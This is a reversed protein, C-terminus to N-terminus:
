EQNIPDMIMPKGEGRESALSHLVIRLFSFHNLQVLDCRRINYFSTFHFITGLCVQGPDALAKALANATLLAGALYQTHILAGRPLLNLYARVRFRIALETIKGRKLVLVQIVSPRQM